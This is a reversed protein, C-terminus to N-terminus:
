WGATGYDPGPVALPITEHLGPGTATIRFCGTRGIRLETRVIRWGLRRVIRLAAAFRLPRSGCSVDPPSVTCSTAGNTSFGLTTRRGAPGLRRGSVTVAAAYSPAVAILTRHLYYGADDTDDGDRSIATKTSLAVLYIPGSRLGKEAPV